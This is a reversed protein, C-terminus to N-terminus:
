VASTFSLVAHLNTWPTPCPAPLWYVCRFGSPCCSSASLHPARIHPIPEWFAYANLRNGYKNGARSERQCTAGGNGMLLLPGLLGGNDHTRRNAIIERREPVGIGAVLL